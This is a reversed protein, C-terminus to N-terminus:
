EEIWVRVNYERLGLYTSNGSPNKYQNVEQRLYYTKGPEALFEIKMPEMISGPLTVLATHLGPLMEIKFSGNM